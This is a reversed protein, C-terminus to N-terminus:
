PLQQHRVATPVAGGIAQLIVDRDNDEGAYKVTGDLNVDRVDYVGTLTNTPVLGGIAQLVLDRDNNLGAYKVQDDLNVDGPWLAMRGNLNMRADSGFAVTTPVTLDVLTSKSSLQHSSGTMVGAHNRHRVAIHYPGSPVNFRVLSVGDTDVVDGDRQLLASRSAMPSSPDLPDRLEVLVWDVIADPGTTAYVGPDVMGVDDGILPQGLSTFPEEAPLLDQARLADEMLGGEAGNVGGLLAKLRVSVDPTPVQVICPETIVPPNFDFFINATNNVQDGPDILMGEHPAIRFSVFGHSRAEDVTSDPLLIYPFRVKLVRQGTLEWQFPHSAAGMRLSGADLGAQLTDTIWVHFATDTGTNQFRITYDIWDDVTADYDVTVGDGSATRALKDNPDFSGTVTRVDTATNNALDGDTLATTVSVTSTLQTGILGVDAPVQARVTISRQQFVPMATLVWTLTGGSVSSPAPSGSLYSLAPDLQMTVTVNGTNSVTQNSVQIAYQMEFGPRAPGSAMAVRVDLPVLSLTPHNVTVTSGATLSFPIPAQTCHENVVASQEHVTYNGLPLVLRYAGGVDTTTYYPGPLVEVVTSPIGRESTQKACDSNNDLFVTGTVVGCTPGLDPITFPVSDLCSYTFGPLHQTPGAQLDGSVIAWYTGPALHAFTWLYPQQGVSGLGMSFGIGDSLIINMGSPISGNSFRVTASGTGVTSCSGEVALVAIDPIVTPPDITFTFQNQCTGIGDTASLIITGGTTGVPLQAKYLTNLGPWPGYDAVPTPSISVVEVMSNPDNWAMENLIEGILVPATGAEYALTQDNFYPGAIGQVGGTAEASAGLGDTVVVKYTRLGELGYLQPGCDTCLEVQGFSVDYWDFRYPPTGGTVVAEMEGNFVHGAEGICYDARTNTVEVSIAYSANAALLAVMGTMPHFFSSVSCARNM